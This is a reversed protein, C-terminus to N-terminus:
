YKDEVRQSELTLPLVVGRYELSTYCSSPQTIQKILLSVLKKNPIESCDKGVVLLTCYVCSYAAEEKQLSLEFGRRRASEHKSGRDWSEFIM